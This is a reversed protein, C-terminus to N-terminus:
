VYSNRGKTSVDLCINMGQIGFAVEARPGDGVLAVEQGARELADTHIANAAFRHRETPSETGRLSERAM